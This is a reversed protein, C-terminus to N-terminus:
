VKNWHITQTAQQQRDVIYGEVGSLQNIFRKGLQVGMVSVTTALADAEMASVALVTVSATERVPVGTVPSILHHFLKEDDYFVEYDGSTAVAGSQLTCVGRNDERQRPDRIAIRWPRGHSKGGHVAIDGGANILAHQIGQQRLIAMARDIIYGKAIGDLTIGMGSRAFSVTRKSLLLHQSGVLELAAALEGEEPQRHHVKFSKQYLDVVPKVTIDFSGHSKAYYYHAAKLVDMVEAPTEKVTGVSNLQSICSNSQYRTMLSSLRKIETFARDMAEEAKLRSPHFLIMHIFTGMGVRSESVKFLKKNFKISEGPFFLSRAAVGLSLAGSLDLFTRRSMLRHQGTSQSNM